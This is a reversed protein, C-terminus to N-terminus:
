SSVGTSPRLGDRTSYPESVTTEGGILAADGGHVAIAVANCVAEQIETHAGDRCLVEFSMTVLRAPYHKSDM